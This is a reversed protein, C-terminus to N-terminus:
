TTPLVVLFAVFAVAHVVWSVQYVIQETGAPVLYSLPLGVFSWVEFDPLSVLAIRAAETTFGTIGILALTGLIWGDEPKTKSRIRWPPTVYRRWMAWALGALYVLGALERVFSYGQYFRSHVFKLNGPLLHDIELTVTGALLVLFGYYNMSHMLGAG